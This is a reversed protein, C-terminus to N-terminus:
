DLLIQPRKRRSAVQAARQPNNDDSFQVEKSLLAMGSRMEYVLGPHLRNVGLLLIQNLTQM